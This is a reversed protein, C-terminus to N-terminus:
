EQGRKRCSGSPIYRCLLTAPCNLLPWLANLKSWLEAGIERSLFLM